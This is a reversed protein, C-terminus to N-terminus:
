LKEVILNGLSAGSTPTGDLSIRLKDVVGTLGLLNISHPSPPGPALPAHPDGLFFCPFVYETGDMGLVQVRIIGARVVQGTPHTLGPLPNQPYPLGLKKATAAPMSTMETGSDVRFPADKWVGFSDRLLLNLEARVLIDGTRQLTRGLLPVVLRSM